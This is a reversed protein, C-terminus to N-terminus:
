EVTMNLTKLINWTEPCHSPIILLDPNSKQLEYLMNLTKIFNRPSTYFCIQFLKWTPINYRINDQLYAADGVFFLDRSEVNNMFLGMQGRTHGPLPVLYMTGDDWLDVATDFSSHSKGRITFDIPIIENKCNNYLSKLYAYKLLKVSNHKTFDWCMFDLEVKNIIIKAHPFDIIGPIHDAHGHSIIIAKVDDPHIGIKLLQNGANNDEKLDCPTLISHIRYPFKRTANYFKTHHGTDFLIIGKQPHEIVAFITPVEIPEFKAGALLISKKTRVWATNLIKVKIKENYNSL